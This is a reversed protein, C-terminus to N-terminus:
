RRGWDKELHSPFFPSFISILRALVFSEKERCRKHLYPCVREDPIIWKIRYVGREKKRYYNLFQHISKIVAVHWVINGSKKLFFLFNSCQLIPRICDKNRHSKKYFSWKNTGRSFSFFSSFYSLHSSNGSVCRLYFFFANRWSTVTKYTNNTPQSNELSSLFTNRDMLFQTKHQKKLLLQIPEDNHIVIVLLLLLAM